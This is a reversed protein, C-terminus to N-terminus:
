CFSFLYIIMPTAPQLKLTFAVNCSFIVLCLIEDKREKEKEKQTSPPLTSPTSPYMNLSHTGEMKSLVLHANSVLKSCM